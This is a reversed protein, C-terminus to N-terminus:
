NNKILLNLKVPSIETNLKQEHVKIMYHSEVCFSYVEYLVFGISFLIVDFFLILSILGKIHLWIKSEDMKQPLVIVILPFIVSWAIIALTAKLNESM